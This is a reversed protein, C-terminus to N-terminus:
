IYPKSVGETLRADALVTCWELHERFRCRVAGVHFVFKTMKLTTENYLTTFEAVINLAHTWPLSQESAGRGQGLMSLIRELSNM